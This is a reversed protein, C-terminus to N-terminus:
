NIQDLRRKVAAAIVGVALLAAAILGLTIIVQELTISGATPEPGTRERVTRRAAAVYGNLIVLVAYTNM